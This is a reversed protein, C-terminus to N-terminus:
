NEGDEKVERTFYDCDIAQIKNKGNCFSKKNCNECQIDKM